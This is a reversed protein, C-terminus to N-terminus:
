SRMWEGIVPWALEPYFQHGGDGAVLRVHSEARAAAFIEQMRAVGKQVGSFRALPDNRGAVILLRRPAILGGIDPMDAAQMIGPLYGCACHPLSLWSDEFTCFACSVVAINIRPDMAAAYFSVTGGTSNGLCGIKSADLDPQTHVFDIARMVDLVRQGTLPRGLHLARLAADNCKVGPQAREGFGRQEIALAAWGQNVAQLAIDRGGAIAARDAANQPRGISIHVGPSHGQLCIMVPPPTRVRKPRLLYGSVHEGPEATFRVRDMTYQEHDSDRELVPDLPVEATRLSLIEGLRLRLARQWATFDGGSAFPLAPTPVAASYGRRVTVIAAVLAAYGLFRRRSCGTIGGKNMSFLRNRPLRAREDLCRRSRNGEMPSRFRVIEM